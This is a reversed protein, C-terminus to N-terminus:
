KEPDRPSRRRLHAGIRKGFFRLVLLYAASGGLLLQLLVGGSTPDIYALYAIAEYPVDSV